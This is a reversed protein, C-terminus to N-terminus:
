SAPSSSRAGRGRSRKTKITRRTHTRIRHCNSCVVDCKAIEAFVARRSCNRNIMNAVADVKKGRVHDFDLVYYPYAKHCDVCPRKEKYDRVEDRIKNGRQKVNAMHTKKHREYWRRLAARRKAPDKYPM